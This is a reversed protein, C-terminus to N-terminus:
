NIIYKCDYVSIFGLGCIDDTNIDGFKLNEFTKLLNQIKNHIIIGVKNNENDKNNNIIKKPEYKYNNNSLKVGLWKKTDIYECM